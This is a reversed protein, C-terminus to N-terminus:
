ALVQTPAFLKRLLVVDQALGRLDALPERAHFEDTLGVLLMELSKRILSTRADSCVRNNIPCLAGRTSVLGGALIPRCTRVLRRSVSRRSARQVLDWHLVLRFKRLIGRTDM